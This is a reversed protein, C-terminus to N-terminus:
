AGGETTFQDAKENKWLQLETVLMGEGFPDEPIQAALKHALSEVMGPDVIKRLTMGYDDLFGAICCLVGLRNETLEGTQEYAIMLSEIQHILDEAEKETPKRLTGTIWIYNNYHIAIRNYFDITENMISDGTNIGQIQEFYPFANQLRNSATDPYSNSYAFAQRLYLGTLASHDKNLRGQNQHLLQSFATAETVTYSKDELYEDLLLNYAKAGGPYLEIARIYTQIRDSSTVSDPLSTWKQYAHYSLWVAGFIGIITTNICLFALFRLLRIKLLHRKLLRINM